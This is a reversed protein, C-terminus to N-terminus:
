ASARRRRMEETLSQETEGEGRDLEADSAALQRIADSDSLIAITEELSELDRSVAAGGATQRPRHRNGPHQNHVRSLLQSLRAKVDALALTESMTM